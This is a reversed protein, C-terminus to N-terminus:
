TAIHFCNQISLVFIDFIYHVYFFYKIFRIHLIKTTRFLLKMKIIFIKFNDKKFKIYLNLLNICFM